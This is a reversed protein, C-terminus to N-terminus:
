NFLHKWIFNTPEKNHRKAIKLTVEDESLRDGGETNTYSEQNKSTDAMIILLLFSSYGLHIAEESEAYSHGLESTGIHEHEPYRDKQALRM